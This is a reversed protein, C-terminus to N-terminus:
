NKGGLYTKRAKDTAAVAHRLTFISSKMWDTGVAKESMVYMDEHNLTITVLDSIQKGKHFWAYYMPMSAGLRLAVVKKREGDGHFGIGCKNHDYYYNGEAKLDKAKDTFFLHLNNQITKLLPTKDYSIITGKKNEYDPDQNNDDYCLNYRAKKNVVRGRMFAKTDWKLKVQEKWLADGIHKGNQGWFASAGNRIILIYAKQERVDDTYKEDLIHVDTLNILECKCPNNLSEFLDKIEKLDNVTFGHEAKKGIRQMGSHNEAQDGFTITITQTALSVHQRFVVDDVLNKRKRNLVSIPKDEESIDSM